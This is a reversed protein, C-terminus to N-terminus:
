VNFQYIRDNTRGLVYMKSTDANFQVDQAKTDRSSVNLSVGSYSGTSVDFATTLSYQYIKDDDAVVFVHKGDHSLGIGRSTTDQSGWSLSKNAYSATSVDFATSLTYQHIKRTTNGSLYMKTGDNSFELGRCQSEQSLVSYVKNSYSATSVDFATSLNYQFVKNSWSAGGDQFVIYMSTGANNFRLGFVRYVQTRVYFSKNAYSATSVNFATSLNYQYVYGGDGGVFMRTGNTNFAFGYPHPEQSSVSPSQTSYTANSINFFALTFASVAQSVSAGDSASFTLSFIGAVTTSPTITFVNANAGTGQSVTATSGLSGSTVTHSFTIPFGEPDTSTLTIVTATGDTALGYSANAGTIATPATNTLTAILWWGTATYMYMKKTANVMAMDGVVMGTAAVLDNITAYVTPGLDGSTLGILVKANSTLNLANNSNSSEEVTRAMVTASSSMLGIGIEFAAGDEIIYRIKDSDVIGSAAFTRYGAVAANLTVNGTGTSSISMKARNAFKTM